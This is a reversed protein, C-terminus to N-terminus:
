APRIHVEGAGSNYLFETTERLQTGRVISDDILLLSKGRILRDVPILKMRAILNRQNQDTPMFSRPWTPTYKIFPRSFPIGSENAYGIAHATGSDPVGAVLDPRVDDAWSSKDRIALAKGCNYRMAEVNVGEYTSTPYGYYIWLFTCIKMIDQAPRLTEYGDATIYVIEGPGLEKEDKYGLNIYSFSEFAVCYAEDEKKGIMLPTRGYLDRGAYIGKDTMVLLTLSGDVRELAYQIGEAITDKQNILTAVLETPNINGGSMELFQTRGVNYAEAVLEDLNNIKCVTTIAYSGLHSQILLPQPEYDSICGVGINGNFDTVDREFKTRFPSNQINHIARDFGRDGYMAMGARRTGLHSHYDTGFFVDLVCDKKSVVGFIGGM